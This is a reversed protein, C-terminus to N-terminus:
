NCFRPGSGAGSEKVSRDGQGLCWGGKGEQGDCWM